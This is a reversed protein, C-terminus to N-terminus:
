ELTLLSLSTFLNAIISSLKLPGYIMLIQIIVFQIYLIGDLLGIFPALIAYLLSLIVFLPIFYLNGMELRSIRTFKVRSQEPTKIQNQKFYAPLDDAYVPGFKAHWGTKKEIEVPDLGTASLQPLILTRHTVKEDIKSTKLISIVSDTLFDDGCAGCWVNIGNSPAILLWCDLHQV